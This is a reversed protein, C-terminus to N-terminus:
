LVLSSQKTKNKIETRYNDILNNLKRTITPKSLIEINLQSWIAFVKDMVQNTLTYYSILKNENKAREFLFFYYRLIDQKTPLNLDSLDCAAGFAALDHPKMQKLHTETSTTANQSTFPVPDM